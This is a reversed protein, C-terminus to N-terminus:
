IGSFCMSFNLLCLTVLNITLNVYNSQKKRYKAKVYNHIINFILCETEIKSIIYSNVIM